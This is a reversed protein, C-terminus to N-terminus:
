PAPPEEIASARRHMERAAGELITAMHRLHDAPSGPKAEALADLFSFRVDSLEAYYGGRPVRFVNVSFCWAPPVAFPVVKDTPM